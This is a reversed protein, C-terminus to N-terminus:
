LFIRMVRELLYKLHSPSRLGVLTRLLVRPRLYFRLFGKRQWRGVDLGEPSYGAGGGTTLFEEWPPLELEPHLDRAAETAPLPLFNSFQAHDLPASVAFDITAKVDEDTEGPFGVIFFGTTRIGARQAAALKELTPRLDLQKRMRELVRPSGSEIGVAFSHLGARAMLKLIEEDLSDLRIGNPCCWSLPEPRSLVAECFERVLRRDTSFNDDELHLDKVGYRDTLEEIEALVNDMSRARLKRGATSWADCFTCRYPCGRTVIFPAAPFGQATLGHPANPYSAPPMLEWAPFAIDDLEDIFRSPGQVPGGGNARHYLNEVDGFDTGGRGLKELLQPLGREAEGKFVFDCHELYGFAHEPVASAHPGGLAIPVQPGMAQRTADMLRRVEPLDVTFSQFGVLDFRKGAIFSRFSPETLQERMGDLVVPRHGADRLSSALYGLGLSPVVTPIRRSWPRVLLVDASM